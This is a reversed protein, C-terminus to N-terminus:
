TLQQALVWAEFEPRPLPKAYYYGQIYDCGISDLLALQAETEVGEAVVKLGLKHAM